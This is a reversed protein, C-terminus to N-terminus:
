EGKVIPRVIVYWDRTVLNKGMHVTYPMPAAKADSHAARTYSYYVRLAAFETDFTATWGGGKAAEHGQVTRVDGANGVITALSDFLKHEFTANNLDMLLM